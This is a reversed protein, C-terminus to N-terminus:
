DDDDDEVEYKKNKKCITYDTLLSIVKDKMNYYSGLAQIYKEGLDQDEEEDTWSSNNNFWEGLVLYQRSSFKHLVDHIIKLSEDDRVWKDENKVYFKRRKSDVCHFPRTKEDYKELHKFFTAKFSNIMGNKNVYVLDEYTYPISYIFEYICIANKCETELYQLVTLRKRNNKKKIKYDKYELINNEIINTTQQQKEQINKVMLSLEQIQQTNETDVRQKCKKRHRWLTARSNFPILCDKCIFTTTERKHKITQIHKKWNYIYETSYNCVDCYHIKKNDDM